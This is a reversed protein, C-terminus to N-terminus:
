KPWVLMNTWLCVRFIISDVYPTSTFQLYAVFYQNQTRTRSNPWCCSRVTVLIFMLSLKSIRRNRKRSWWGLLSMIRTKQQSRRDPCGWHTTRQLSLRIWLSTSNLHWLHIAEVSNINLHKSIAVECWALNCNEDLKFVKYYLFIHM